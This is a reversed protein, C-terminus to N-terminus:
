SENHEGKLKSIKQFFAAQEKHPLIDRKRKELLLLHDLFSTTAESIDSKSITTKGKNVLPGYLPVFNLEYEM